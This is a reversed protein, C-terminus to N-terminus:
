RGRAWDGEFVDRLAKVTKKSTLVVALERNKDLSGPSYNLSGLTGSASDILLVKAHIFPSALLRVEVGGERLRRRAPENRDDADGTMLLRVRVNRRAAALLAEEVEPDSMHENYIEIQRRARGLLALTGSRANGPSWLLGAHGTKIPRGEWDALMVKEMEAVATLDHIRLAFGRNEQFALRQLNHTLVWAERDLILSKQHTVPYSASGWRVEVGASELQSFAAENDDNRDLLVRVLLGRKRAAVLEEIWSRDTLRYMTVLVRGRCARVRQLLADSGPQVILDSSAKLGLQIWANLAMFALLTLTAKRM